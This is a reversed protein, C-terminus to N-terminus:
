AIRLQALTAYANSGSIDPTICLEIVTLGTLEVHYDETQSTAGKPSFNWQQRVVERFSQGGDASWRLVYEQTREMVSEVFNLRIRRIRQPHEFLLRITQKGPEAARWGSGRGPLLAFEIPHEADESTLEVEALNEINLWDQDLPLPDQQVAAILRKRM